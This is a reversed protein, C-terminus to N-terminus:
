GLVATVADLVAPAGTFLYDHGGPLLRLTFGASACARWRELQAGGVLPDEAGGFVHLPCGVPVPGASRYVETLALDRRVTRLAYRLYSPYERLGPPFGGFGELWALLGQDDRDSIRRPVPTHPARSASVLLAHPLPLGRRGARVAIEYGLLAGFSHGFLAYPLDFEGAIGDLVADALEELTDPVLEGARVGRGPLEVTALEIGDPPILRWPAFSGASGGAQPLCFLRLRPSPATVRGVIWPTDVGRAPPNAPHSPPVATHTRM